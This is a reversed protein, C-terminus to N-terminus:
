IARNMPSKKNCLISALRTFSTQAMSLCVIKLSISCSLALCSLNCGNPSILVWSGSNNVTALYILCFSKKATNISSTPSTPLAHWPSPFNLSSNICTALTQTLHNSCILSGASYFVPKKHVKHNVLIRGKNYIAVFYVDNCFLPCISANYRRM